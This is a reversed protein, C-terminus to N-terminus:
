RAVVPRTALLELRGVLGLVQLATATPDIVRPGSGDATVDVASCGNLVAGVELDAVAGGVSAAWTAEDDIAQNRAVAAFSRGLAGLLHSSLRLLGLVPVPGPAGTGPDLVCDPLFADYAGTATARLAEVVLAESRRVDEDTELARPVGPGDGLDFLEVSVGPPALVRYRHRRRELEDDAVHIPTMARIKM